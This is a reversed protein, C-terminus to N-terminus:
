RRRIRASRCLRRAGPRLASIAALVSGIPLDVAELSLDGHSAGGQVSKWPFLRSAVAWDSSSATPNASLWESFSRPNTAKPRLPM